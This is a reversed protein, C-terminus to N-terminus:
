PASTLNLLFVLKMPQLSKPNKSTGGQQCSYQLLPRCPPQPPEAPVARVPELAKVQLAALLLIVDNTQLTGIHLITWALM